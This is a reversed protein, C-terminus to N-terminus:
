LMEKTLDNVMRMYIDIIFGHMKLSILSEVDYFGQKMLIRKEYEGDLYKLYNALQMKSKSQRPYYKHQSEVVHRLCAKFEDPSLWDIYTSM